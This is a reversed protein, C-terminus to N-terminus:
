AFGRKAFMVKALKPNQQFKARPRYSLPVNSWKRSQKHDWNSKSQRSRVRRGSEPSVGVTTSINNRITHPNSRTFRISSCDCYDSRNRFRPLFLRFTRYLCGPGITKCEAGQGPRSRLAQVPFGRVPPLTRANQSRSFMPGHRLGLYTEPLMAIKGATLELIKLSAERAWLLLPASALVVAREPRSRAIEKAVTDLGAIRIKAQDCIAPLHELLVEGHSLSIGAVVLNSFSSTMVLSRDNSRPDLLLLHINSCQALQGDPNCTIAFQPLAPFDRRVMEVVAVSELSDGSRAISLLFDAQRLVRSDTTLDTTATARSAAWASQIADAAYASSGAGCWAGRGNIEKRWNTRQAREFTDNWLQPQQCIEAATIYGPQAGDTKGPFHLVTEM